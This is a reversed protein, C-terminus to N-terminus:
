GCFASILDSLGPQNSSGSLTYCTPSEVLSRIRDTHKEGPSPDRHAAATVFAGELLRVKAYWSSSRDLGAQTLCRQVFQKPPSSRMAAHIGFRKRLLRSVCPALSGSRVARGIRSRYAKKCRRLERLLGEDHADIKGASRLEELILNFSFVYKGEQALSLIAFNRFAVATVDLAWDLSQPIVCIEDVVRFLEVSSNLDQSYNALPRFSQLINALGGGEDHVVHAEQKLHQIFLAGRDSLGQLKRRSYCACSFGQRALTGASRLLDERHDGMLLIDRDSHADADGRARSGYIAVASVGHESWNMAYSEKNDRQRLLEAM